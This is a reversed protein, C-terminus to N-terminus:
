GRATEWVFRAWADEDSEDSFLAKLWASEKTEKSKIHEIYDMVSPEDTKDFLNSM